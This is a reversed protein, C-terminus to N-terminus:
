KVVEVIATGSVKKGSSYAIDVRLLEIIDYLVNMIIALVYAIGIALAVGKTLFVSTNLMMVLVVGILIPNVVYPLYPSCHRVILRNMESWTYFNDEVHASSNSAEADLQLQDSDPFALGLSILLDHDQNDNSLAVNLAHRSAIYGVSREDVVTHKYRHNFLYYDNHYHQRTLWMLNADFSYGALRMASDYNFEHMWVVFDGVAQEAFLRAYAWAKVNRSSEVVIIPTRPQLFSEEISRKIDCQNCAQVIIIEDYVRSEALLSIESIFLDRKSGILDRNRVLVGFSMVNSSDSM